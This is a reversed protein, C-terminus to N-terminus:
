CASLGGHLTHQSCASLWRVYRVVLDRVVQLHSESMSEDVEDCRTETFDTFERRFELVHNCVAAVLGLKRIGQSQVEDLVFDLLSWTGKLSHGKGKEIIEEDIKGVEFAKAVDCRQRVNATSFVRLHETKARNIPGMNSDAHVNESTSRNRQTWWKTLITIQPVSDDRARINCVPLIDTYVLASRKTVNDAYL